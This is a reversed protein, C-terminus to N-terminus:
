TRCDRVHGPGLQCRRLWAVSSTWARVVRTRLAPPRCCTALRGLRDRAADAQLERARQAALAGSTDTELYM